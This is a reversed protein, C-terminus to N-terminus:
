TWIMGQRDIFMCTFGRGFSLEFGWVKKIKFTKSNVELIGGYSTIWLSTTDGPREGIGQILDFQFGRKAQNDTTRYSYRTFKHNERNVLILGSNTGVWLNGKHDEFMNNAMEGPFGDKNKPDYPFNRFTGTFPNYMSIGALTGIWLMSDRTQLLCHVSNDVISFPDGAKAKFTTFNRGDYRALGNDTGIWIYGRFDQVADYCVQSPLGSQRTLFRFNLKLESQPYLESPRSQATSALPITLLVFLVTIGLRYLLRTIGAMFRFICCYKIGFDRTVM